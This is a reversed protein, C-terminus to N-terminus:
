LKCISTQKKVQNIKEFELSFKDNSIKASYVNVQNSKTSLENGLELMKEKLSSDARYGLYIGSVCEFKLNCGYLTKNNEDYMQKKTYIVRWEKEGIWKKGKILFMPLVNDFIFDGDYECDKDICECLYEHNCILEDINGINFRKGGYVVPYLHQLINFETKKLKKINYEVCFGTHNKAYNSWMLLDKHSESFCTMYAMDSLKKLKEYTGSKDLLPVGEFIDNMVGNPSLHIEQRELNRIQYYECPMYRYLKFTKRKELVKKLHGEYFDGVDNDKVDDGWWEFIESLDDRLKKYDSM